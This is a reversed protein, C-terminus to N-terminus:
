LGGKEQIPCQPGLEARQEASNLPMSNVYILASLCSPHAKRLWYFYNWVFIFKELTDSDILTSSRSLTCTGLHLTQIWEEKRSIQSKPWFRIVFWTRSLPFIVGIWMKHFLLYETNGVLKAYIKRQTNFEKIVMSRLYYKGTFTALLLMAFYRCSWVVTMLAWRCKMSLLSM